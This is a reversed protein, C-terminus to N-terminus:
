SPSSETPDQITEPSDVGASSSLTIIAPPGPVSGAPMGTVIGSITVSRKQAFRIDIGTVEQGPMLDILTAKDKSAVGPYFTDGYVPTVLGDGRIEPSGMMSFRSGPGDAVAHVYFRGPPLVMRFLGRDDSGGGMEPTQRVTGQSAPEAKVGFYQVPDGNEDFVHGTIVAHPTMEVTLDKVDEGPKLTITANDHWTSTKAPVHLYGNYKADLVYLGPKLSAISFHGDPRTIAGYTDGDEGNDFGSVDAPMTRVIVHVGAMPQRTVADVSQGQISAQQACLSSSLLLFTPTLCRM